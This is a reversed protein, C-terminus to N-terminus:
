DQTGGYRRETEIWRRVTDLKEEAFLLNPHLRLAEAFAAEAAQLDGRMVHIEGRGALAGFHRPELALTREIDALSEDYRQMLWLVNARQNWGEAFQPAAKVVTNFKALAAEFQWSEVLALAERMTEELAADPAHHWIAWIRKEARMLTENDRSTQLQEFLTDLESTSPDAWLPPALSAQWLWLALLRCSFAVARRPIGSM